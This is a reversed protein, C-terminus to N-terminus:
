RRPGGDADGGEGEGDGPTAPPPVEEGEPRPFFRAKRNHCDMCSVASGRLELKKVFNEECHHAIAKKPTEAEYDYTRGQQVHCYSCKVGLGTAWGQMKKKMAKEDGSDGQVATWPSLVALLLGGLLVFSWGRRGDRM